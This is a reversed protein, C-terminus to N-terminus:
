MTIYITDAISMMLHIFFLSTYSVNIIAMLCPILDDIAKDTIAEPKECVDKMKGDFIKMMDDSSQSQGQVHDVTIIIAFVCLILLKFM